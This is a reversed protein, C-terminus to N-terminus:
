VKNGYYTVIYIVTTNYGNKIVILRYLSNTIYHM